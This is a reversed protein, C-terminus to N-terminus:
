PKPETAVIDKLVDSLLNLLQETTFPKALFPVDDELATPPYASFVLVKLTHRRARLEALLAEGGVYPMRLDTVVLDVTGDFLKLAEAGNKAPVVRYGERELSTAMLQRIAPEDEVLLITEGVLSPSDSRHSTLGPVM